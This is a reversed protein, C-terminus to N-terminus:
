IAATLKRLLWDQAMADFEARDAESLTTLAAPYEIANPGTLDALVVAQDTSQVVKAEIRTGPITITVDGIPTVSFGLLDAM